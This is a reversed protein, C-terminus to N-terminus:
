GVKKTPYSHHAPASNYYYLPIGNSGPMFVVKKVGKGIYLAERKKLSFEQGDVVVSGTDGVNIIGIERRQLFFDAKLIDLANLELAQKIPKVGGAIFRDYFSYTSTITDDIFIGEILFNERLQQTTFTQVATPHIAHRPTNPSTMTLLHLRKRLNIFYYGLNTNILREDNLVSM